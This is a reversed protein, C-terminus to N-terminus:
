QMRDIPLMLIQKNEGARVRVDALTRTQFGTFEGKIAYRGPILNDFTAQGKDSTVAAPITLGKNSPDAGTLTITGGPLVANTEDILTVLLKGKDAAAQAYAHLPALCALLLMLLARM